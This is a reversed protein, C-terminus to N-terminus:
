KNNPLIKRKIRYKQQRLRNAIKETTPENQNNFSIKDALEKFGFHPTTEKGLTYDYYKQINPKNLAKTATKISRSPRRFNKSKAIISCIKKYFYDFEKKPRKGMKMKTRVFDKIFQKEKTTLGIRRAEKPNHVIQDIIGANYKPVTKLFRKYLVAHEVWDTFNIPLEYRKLIKRIEREFKIVYNNNKGYLFSSDEMTKNQYKFERFDDDPNLNPVKLFMRAKDVDSIFDINKSLVLVKERNLKARTAFYHEGIKGFSSQLIDGFGNLINNKDKNKDM